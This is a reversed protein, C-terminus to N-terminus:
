DIHGADKITVYRSAVFAGVIVTLTIVFACIYFTEEDFVDGFHPMYGSLKKIVQAEATKSPHTM